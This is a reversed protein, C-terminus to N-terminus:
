APALSADGYLAIIKLAWALKDIARQGKPQSTAWLELNELRNDLKDGNIHHVNEDTLLIRGLHAEMVVRHEPRWRGRSKIMWYGSDSLHGAGRLSAVGGADGKIKFRQSHMECFGLRRVRRDCGDVSCRKPERAQAVKSSAVGYCARSCYRCKPDNALVKGCTLCNPFPRAKQTPAKLQEPSRTRCWRRYHMSCYGRAVHVRDCGEISCPLKAAQRRREMDCTSCLRAGRHYTPTGCAECSGFTVKAM